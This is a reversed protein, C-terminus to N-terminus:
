ESRLLEKLVEGFLDMANLAEQLSNLDNGVEILITRPHLHQNYRGSQVRYGLSLGPYLEDMKETVQRAFERNKMWEPHPLRADSGVILRIRACKRGNITSTLPKAHGADRHVDIVVRAHPNDQLLKELTLASNTYSEEFKPYDHITESRVVSIGYKDRLVKELQAAAKVVGANEGELKSVGDTASYTEANHTNFIIVEAGQFVAQYQRPDNEIPVEPEELPIDPTEVIAEDEFLPYSEMSVAALAEMAGVATMGQGFFSRPNRPNVDFVTEVMAVLLGDQQAPQMWYVPPLGAVLINKFTQNDIGLLYMVEKLLSVDIDREPEVPSAEQLRAEKAPANIISAALLILVLLLLITKIKAIARPSWRIYFKIM